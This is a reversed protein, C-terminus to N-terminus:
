GERNAEKSLEDDIVTKDFLVRRGIKKVAGIEEAWKRLYTAGLGTYGQAETVSLMRKQSIDIAKVTDLM